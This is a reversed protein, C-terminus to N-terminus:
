RQIKTPAIDWSWQGEVTVIPMKAFGEIVKLTGKYPIERNQTKKSKSEYHVRFWFKKNSFNILGEVNFEGLFNKTTTSDTVVKKLWPHKGTIKDLTRLSIHDFKESRDTTLPLHTKPDPLTM